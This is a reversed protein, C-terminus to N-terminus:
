PGGNWRPPISPLRGVACRESWSLDVSESLGGKLYGVEMEGGGEVVAAGSILSEAIRVVAPPPRYEPKGGAGGQGTRPPKDDASRAGEHPWADEM